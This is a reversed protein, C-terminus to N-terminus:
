ESGGRHPTHDGSGPLAGNQRLKSELGEIKARLETIERAQATNQSQLADCTKQCERERAELQELRAKAEDIQQRLFAVDREHAAKREAAFKDYAEAVKQNALAEINLGATHLAAQRADEAVRLAVTKEAATTDLAARTAAATERRTQFRDYLLYAAGAVGLLGGAAGVIGGVLGTEGDAFLEFAM